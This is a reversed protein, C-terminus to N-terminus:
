PAKMPSPAAAPPPAPLPTPGDSQPAVATSTVGAASATPTTGTQLTDSVFSTQQTPAPPRVSHVSRASRREGRNSSRPSSPASVRPSVRPPHWAPHLVRRASRPEASATAVTNGSSGFDHTAVVATAAAAALAVSALAGALAWALGSRRSLSVAAAPRARQVRELGLENAWHTIGGYRSAAVYLDGHGAAKFESATPWASRNACFTELERRIRDSTWRRQAAPRHALVYRTSPGGGVRVLLGASALESLDRAAQSRGLGTLREYERRALSAGSDRELALLAGRQAPKLEPTTSPVRRTVVVGEGVARERPGYRARLPNLSLWRRRLRTVLDAIASKCTLHVRFRVLQASKRYITWQLRALTWRLQGRLDRLSDRFRWYLAAGVSFAILYVTIAPVLVNPSSM